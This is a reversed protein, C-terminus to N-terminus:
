SYGESLRQFFENHSYEGRNFYDPYAASLSSQLACRFRCDTQRGKGCIFRFGGLRGRRSSHTEIDLKRTEGRRRGFAAPVPIPRMHSFSLM